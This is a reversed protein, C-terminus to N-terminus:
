CDLLQGPDQVSPVIRYPNISAHSQYYHHIVHDWRVTDRVGPLRWFRKCYAWLNPMERILRKSCKFHTHYVPDFRVLTPWLCVDAETLVGRGPGVLWDRGALHEELAELRAWLALSAENYADQSRAFGCKYVGNNVPEYNADIMVDIEHTLGGPNLTAVPGRTALTPALVDDFMRLIERSENNVITDTQKDYLVPVTGIADFEPAARQYVAQLDKAGGQSDPTCGPVSPDFIWAGDDRMAWSVVDVSIADQLGLLTRALLTRNAWPCAYQVYLHYRNPAPPFPQAGGDVDLAIANRFESQKREFRGGRKAHPSWPSEAM